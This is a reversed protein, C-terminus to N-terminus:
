YAYFCRLISVTRPTSVCCAIGLLLSLSAGFNENIYSGYYPENFQEFNGLGGDLRPRDGLQVGWLMDAATEQSFCNFAGYCDRRVMDLAGRVIRARVYGRVALVLPGSAVRGKLASNNACWLSLMLFM